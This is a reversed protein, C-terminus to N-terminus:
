TCPVVLYVSPPLKRRPVKSAGVLSHPSATPGTRKGIWSGAENM